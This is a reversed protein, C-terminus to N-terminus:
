IVMMKSTSGTLEAAFFHKSARTFNKLMKLIGV